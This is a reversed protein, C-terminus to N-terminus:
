VVGRVTAAFVVGWAPLDCVWLRWWNLRHWEGMVKVLAEKGVKEDELAGRLRGAYRFPAVHALTLAFGLGFLSSSSSSAPLLFANLLLSVLSLPYLSGMIWMIKRSFPRAITPSTTLLMAFIVHQHAVSIITASSLVLPSLRLAAMALSAYPTSVQSPSM